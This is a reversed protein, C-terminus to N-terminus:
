YEPRVRSSGGRAQERDETRPWFVALMGLAQALVLPLFQLAQWPAPRRALHEGAALSVLNRAFREGAWWSPLPARGRWIPLVVELLPNEVFHPIRAGVGQFLLILVGGALGLWIALWLSVLGARPNGGKALLAAVPIMVFPLLPVLLRPGTSWGGTWEPYSLNVLLVTVAIAFTVLAAGQRRGKLLVWWGPVALILIPAYFFLGRYTGLLLPRLLSWDPPQLGLPNKRNHVKAFITTAHHFYGMDWPSGFALLNYGLLLLTPPMAGLAFYALADPRRRGAFCQSLLYLGLIATVPGVQLEILPACAALFGAALMRCADRGSGPKYLLAFSGLLAFASVQHGYALTAYVYAPTALGYTLGVLAARRPSCGMVRALHMLVLATLATFLGSTGLTVWYDAPWYAMAPANLPHPPLRFVWRSLAYPITALFSFGPLKDCYYHGRYYAIDGTQRDLGDLCVTGSDVLAYTLMLRSASNWDRSHWFFAYSGLLVAFVWLQVRLWDNRIM